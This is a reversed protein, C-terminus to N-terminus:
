RVSQPRRRARSSSRATWGHRGFREERARARDESRGIELFVFSTAVAVAVAVIGRGIVEGAGDAAAIVVIGAAAIARPAAFWRVAAPRVPPGLCV